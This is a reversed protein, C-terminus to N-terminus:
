APNLVVTVLKGEQFVGKRMRRLGVLGVLVSGVLALSAPEPVVAGDTLFFATQGAFVNWIGLTGQQAHIGGSDAAWWSWGNYTDGNFIQLWYTVGPTLSVPSGFEVSFLYPHLSGATDRQRFASGRFVDVFSVDSPRGGDDEHIRVIFDHAVDNLAGWWHVSGIDSAGPQLVFDDATLQPPSAGYGTVGPGATPAGNDFIIAAESPVCPFACMTVVLLALNTMTAKTARVSRSNNRM